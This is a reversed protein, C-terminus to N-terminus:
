CRLWGVDLEVLTDAMMPKCSGPPTVGWMAVGSWGVVKKQPIYAISPQAEGNGTRQRGKGNTTQLHWLDDNENGTAETTPNDAKRTNNKEADYRYANKIM